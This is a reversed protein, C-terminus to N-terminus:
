GVLPRAAGRVQESLEYSTQHLADLAPKIKPPLANALQDLHQQGMQRFAAATESLDALCAKVRDRDHPAHGTFAEGV